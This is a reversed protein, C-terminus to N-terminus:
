FNPTGAGGSVHFMTTAAPRRSDCFDGCLMASFASLM